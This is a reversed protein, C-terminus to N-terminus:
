RLFRGPQPRAFRADNGPQAGVQWLQALRPRKPLEVPKVFRESDELLRRAPIRLVQDGKNVSATGQPGAEFDRAGLSHEIAQHLEARLVWVHEMEGPLTVPHNEPGVFRHVAELSHKGHRLLNRIRKEFQRNKVLPPMTDIFRKCEDFIAQAGIGIVEFRVQELGPEKSPGLIFGAGLRKKAFQGGVLLCMRHHARLRPSFQGLHVVATLFVVFRHPRHELALLDEQAM